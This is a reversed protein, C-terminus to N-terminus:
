LGRSSEALLFLERAERSLRVSCCADFLESPYEKLVRYYSNAVRDVLGREVIVPNLLPKVHGPRM